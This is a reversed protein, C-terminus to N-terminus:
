KEPNIPIIDSKGCTSIPWLHPVLSGSSENISYQVDLSFMCKQPDLYMHLFWIKLPCINIISISIKLCKFPWRSDDKRTEGPWRDLQGQLAVRPGGGAVPVLSTSRVCLARDMASPRPFCSRPLLCCARPIQPTLISTGTTTAYFNHNSTDAQTTSSFLWILDYQYEMYREFATTWWRPIQLLLCETICHCRM